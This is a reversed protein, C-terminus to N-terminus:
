ASGSHFKFDSRSGTRWAREETPSSRNLARSCDSILKLVDMAPRVVEGAGLASTLRLRAGARRRGLARCADPIGPVFPVQEGSAGKRGLRLQLVKSASFLDIGTVWHSGRRPGSVSLDSLVRAIETGTM